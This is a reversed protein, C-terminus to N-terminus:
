KGWRAAWAALRERQIKANHRTDVPIPGGHNMVRRIGGTCAAGAAVQLIEKAPRDSEVIAVPEQRGPEGVGVVAVRAESEAGLVAECQDAYLDGEATRVRQSKRGLFWLRGQEDFKGVDGMRHWFGGGPHAIKSLADADPRAFYRATVQPGRVVVEGPAGRPVELEPMWQFIPEDTVRICRLDIGEVPRGVCIGEGAAAKARTEGLITRHDINSVPLAETAGYPTHLIADEPLARALSELVRPPVPAGASIVRRLTSFWEDRGACWESLPGLLGPSAFMTTVRHKRIQAAIRAPDARAPRTPDMDPVVTTMGLAPDFLAFLPFTPLDVEGPEIGFTRRVMEVQAAFNGHTYVAGRPPGTSGSTFLIAAPDDAAVGRADAPGDGGLRRVGDLSTGGLGLTTGVGVKVRVTGGGLGLLVRALHAKTTGVFAGPAAEALCTRMRAIGMGPDVVVPVAAAKFLGFVLPFFDPGPPVLLAVRTGPAVGLAALGRAIRGSDADLDRYSVTRGGPLILAAADPRARAQETLAAAINM